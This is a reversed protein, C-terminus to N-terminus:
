CKLAYTNYVAIYPSRRQVYEGTREWFTNMILFVNKPNKRENDVRQNEDRQDLINEDDQPGVVVTITRKRM